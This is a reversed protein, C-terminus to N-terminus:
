RALSAPIAVPVVTSAQPGGESEDYRVEVRVRSGVALADFADGVVANRHFYVNEGESTEIFGYGEDRFLRVVEGVPPEAHQKTDGQHRRHEGELIRRAADFSDRVVANLDEQAHSHHRRSVVIERRPVTVDV